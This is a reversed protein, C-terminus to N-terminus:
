KANFLSIWNLAIEGTDRIDIVRHEQYEHRQIHCKYIYPMGPSWYFIDSTTTTHSMKAVAKSQRRPSARLSPSALQFKTLSFLSSFASICSILFQPRRAAATLILWIPLLTQQGLWVKLARYGWWCKLQLRGFFGSGSGNLGAAGSNM